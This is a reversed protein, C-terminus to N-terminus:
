LGLITLLEDPKDIIYEAKEQEFVDRDRFGWTVAVCPIGANRATLVDVESDGVYVANKPAAGLLKLAEDVAERAPKRPVDPRDGIAIEIYGNFLNKVLAACPADPKNSVVAMKVNHQRLTHLLEMIGEYPQTHNNMNQKYIPRYFELCREVEEDSTGEPLASKILMMAGHGLFSRIEKESRQPYGNQRLMENVSEALDQLTDLLTGDLDFVVTNYNM